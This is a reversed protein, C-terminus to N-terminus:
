STIENSWNFSSSGEHWQPWNNCWDPGNCERVRDMLNYPKIDIVPTEHAVDIFPTYIVGNEYDVYNVEIISVMIPNPRAPSRTAFVGIKEPGKKFLKEKVLGARYESTDCLHGWCIIHLHSYGEINKLGPIYAEDLHISSVKNNNVYGIQKIQYIYEM